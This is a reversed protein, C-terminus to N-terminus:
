QLCEAVPSWQWFSMVLSSLGKTQGLMISGISAVTREKRLIMGKMKELSKLNIENTQCASVPVGFDERKEGPYPLTDWCGTWEEPSWAMNKPERPSGQRSEM